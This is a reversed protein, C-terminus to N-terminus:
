GVKGEECLWEFGDYLEKGGELFSWDRENEYEEEVGESNGAGEIRRWVGVRERERV